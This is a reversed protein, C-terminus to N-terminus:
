TGPRIYIFPDKVYKDGDVFVCYKYEGPTADKKVKDKFEKVGKYALGKNGFKKQGGDFIRAGEGEAKCDHTATGKVFSGVEVDHSASCLNAVTWYVHEGLDVEHRETATIECGGKGDDTIVITADKATAHPALPKSKAACSVVLLVLAFLPVYKRSARKV